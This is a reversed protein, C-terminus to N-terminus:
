GITRAASCRVRFLASHPVRRTLTPWSRSTPVAVRLLGDPRLVRTWEQLVSLTHRYGFHELCHSAYVLDACGDAFLSLDDIPKQIHVHPADMMDINVFGAANVMGCGVHLRLCGDASVPLSPPNFRRKFSGIRRRGLRILKDKAREGFTPRPNDSM